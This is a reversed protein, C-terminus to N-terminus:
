ARVGAAHELRGVFEHVDLFSNYLPAPAVRIVDPERWDVIVNLEDLRDFIERGSVPLDTIMLSLQCGRENPDCPTIISVQEGFQEALRRELYRTLRVSKERLKGIGAASFIELSAIVPALSFIPQNSLQWADVGPARDYEPQMLLRTSENNGWWGLLRPLNASLHREHVFAGGVAGPGGNLYKYSCWVAFDIGWDHLQLPTNGIAHALDIGLTIGHRRALHGLREMDLLQGSYYQVGPLLLMAVSNNHEQLLMELDEISLSAEGDAPLWEILHEGPDVGHWRMQSEVAFRDSPFVDREIIIKCRDKRPRYFSVMLLHLNVTLSNMAVVENDQSGTLAALLPRARHHYRMWPQRAEFHGRVGLRSWDDLEAKVADAAALPMLGLSNGCLYVPDRGNRSEPLGFERRWQALDDQEDLRRADNAKDARNTTDSRM